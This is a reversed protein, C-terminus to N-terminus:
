ENKNEETPQYTMEWTPHCPVPKREGDFLVLIHPGSAGKIVGTRDKMVVKVGVYAPVGYADRHYELLDNASPRTM